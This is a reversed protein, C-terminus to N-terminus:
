EERPSSFFRGISTSFISLRNKSSPGSRFLSIASTSPIISITFFKVDARHCFSDLGHVLDFVQLPNAAVIYLAINEVAGHGLRVIFRQKYLFALVYACKQIHTVMMSCLPCASPKPFGDTQGRQTNCHRRM